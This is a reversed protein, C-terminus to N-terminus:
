FIRPEEMEGFVQRLVGAMEGVSCYALCCEVLVPMLNAGATAAQEMPEGRALSVILAGNFGDGAGIGVDLDAVLLAPRHTFPANRTQWAAGEAGLKIVVRKPGHRLVFEAIARPGKRRTWHALEGVTGTLLDVHGWLEHMQAPPIDSLWGVGSDLVATGGFCALTGRVDEFDDSTVQGYTAVLLWAADYGASLRWDIPSGPHQLTGLRRGDGTAATISFMTSDGPRAIIDVGADALWGRVLTGFTDQGVPANLRARAGLKGVVYAAGGGNGGLHMRAPRDLRSLPAALFNEGGAGSMWDAPADYLTMDVCAAGAVDVTLVDSM